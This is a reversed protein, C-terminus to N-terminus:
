RIVRVGGEERRTDAAALLASVAFFDRQGFRGNEPLVWDFSSPVPMIVNQHQALQPIATIALKMGARPRVSPAFKDGNLGTKELYTLGYALTKPDKLPIVYARLLIILILALLILVLLAVLLTPDSLPYM